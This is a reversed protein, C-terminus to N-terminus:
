MLLTSFGISFFRSGWGILYFHSCSIASEAHMTSRAQLMHRQRQEINLFRFPEETVNMHWDLEPELCVTAIINLKRSQKCENTLMKRAPHHHTAVERTRSCIPWAGILRSTHQSVDSTHISLKEMCPGIFSHVRYDHQDSRAWSM